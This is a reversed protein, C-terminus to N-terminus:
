RFVGGVPAHTGAAAGKPDFEGDSGFVADSCVIAEAAIRYADM